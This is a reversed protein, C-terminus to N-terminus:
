SRGGLSSPALKRVYKLGLFMLVRCNPSFDVTPVPPMSDLTIM